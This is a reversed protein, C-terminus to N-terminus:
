DWGNSFISDSMCFSPSFKRLGITGLLNVPSTQLLKRYYYKGKLFTFSKYQLKYMGTHLPPVESQGM